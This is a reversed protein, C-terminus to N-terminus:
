DQLQALLENGSIKSMNSADFGFHRDLQVLMVKSFMARRDKRSARIGRVKLAKAIQLKIQRATLEM